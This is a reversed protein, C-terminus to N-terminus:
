EKGGERAKAYELYARNWAQAAVRDAAVSDGDTMVMAISRLINKGTAQSIKEEIMAAAAVHCVSRAESLEDYDSVVVGEPIFVGWLEGAAGPRSNEIPQVLLGGESRM